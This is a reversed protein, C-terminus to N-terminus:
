TGPKHIHAAYIQCPRYELLLLAWKLHVCINVSHQRLHVCNKNYKTDNGEYQYNSITEEPVMLSGQMSIYTFVIHFSKSIM